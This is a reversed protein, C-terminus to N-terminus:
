IRIKKTRAMDAEAGIHGFAPWDSGGLIRDWLAMAENQRGNALYLASVGYRVGTGATGAGAAALVEAEKKVGKYFLLLSHYSTNEIVDLSPTIPALVEAAEKDRRARRLTLYLWNSTSVLNDDNKGVARARKWDEVSQTYNGKLYRALALHYWINGHLTSLPIKRANPQGDPEVEDPKRFILETAKELDAIAREFERVTIYRHGRHRYLRPDDPYLSMGGSFVQIAERFLGLYATRRGLWIIAEASPEAKAKEFAAAHDAELRRREAAPLPPPFLPNGLLSTAQPEAQAFLSRVFMCPTYFRLLNTYSAM